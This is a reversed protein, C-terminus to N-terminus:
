KLSVFISSKLYLVPRVGDENGCRCGDLNGRPRVIAVSSSWGRESISWPTCTWFWDGLDTNVILDNYKRAEDFTLPRAKCVVDGFNKQMDVTTLDANNYLVNGAGIEAEINPLIDEEIVRRLNSDKYDPTSGFEVNEALFQKSIVLTSESGDAFQDLVIFEDSGILFTQGPMLVSLKVKEAKEKEELMRVLERAQELEKSM